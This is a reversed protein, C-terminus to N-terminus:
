RVKAGQPVNEPFVPFVPQNDVDAALVMGESEVGRIKAPKLNTLIIMRKGIYEELSYVEAGGTVVQRKETGIDMELKVLKQAGDIKEAKLVYGVKFDLKQFEDFTIQGM